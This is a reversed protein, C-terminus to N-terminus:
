LLKPLQFGACIERCELCKLSVSAQAEAQRLRGVLYQILVRHSAPFVSSERPRQEDAPGAQRYVGDDCHMVKM